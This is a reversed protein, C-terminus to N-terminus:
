IGPICPVDPLCGCLFLMITIMLVYIAKNMVGEKFFIAKGTSLVSKEIIKQDRLFHETQKWDEINIVGLPRNNPIMLDRSSKVQQEILTRDTSEDFSHIIDIAQALNKQDLVETWGKM